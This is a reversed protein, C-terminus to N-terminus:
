QDFVRAIRKSPKLFKDTQEEPVLSMLHLHTCFMPPIISVPYVQLVSVFAQQLAVYQGYSKRSPINKFRVFAEAKSIAQKCTFKCQIRYDTGSQVCRNYYCVVYHQYTLM